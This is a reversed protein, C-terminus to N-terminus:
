NRQEFASVVFFVKVSYYHMNFSPVLAAPLSIEGDLRKVTRSQLPHKSLPWWAATSVDDVQKREKPGYKIEHESGCSAIDLEATRRLRVDVVDPKALLDLAEVDDCLM